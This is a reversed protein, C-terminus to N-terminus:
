RVKARYGAVDAETLLGANSPHSRVTAAIDRAIAGEYFAVPGREAVDRLVAAYDPNRMITGVKKPSGDPEFFYAAAVPDNRLTKAGDETLQAYLRPSLALGKEALQIAPQFLAKWPLKGHQQHALEL